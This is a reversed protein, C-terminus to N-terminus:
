NKNQIGSADTVQTRLEPELLLEEESKSVKEENCKSSCAAQLKHLKHVQHNAQGVGTEAEARFGATTVGFHHMHLTALWNLM